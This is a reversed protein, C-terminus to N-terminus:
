PKQAPPASAPTPSPAPPLLDRVTCRFGPIVDEGGLEDNERVEAVSGNARHIRASRTDPFIVWVLRVGAALYEKVTRDLELALDNPSVVEVAFDPAIRTHGEPLQEGPLRGFQIFSVDPKRVRAPEDPFCQYSADAPFTWGLRQQGCYERLRGHLEGGIWSSTTGMGREVLRGDVLEYNVADPLALLDDPTFRRGSPVSPPKSTIASM